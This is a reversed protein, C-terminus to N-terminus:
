GNAYPSTNVGNYKFPLKKRIDCHEPNVSNASNYILSVWYAHDETLNNKYNNTNICCNDCTVSFYSDPGAMTTVRALSM